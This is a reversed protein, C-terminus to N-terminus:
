CGSIADKWVMNRLPIITEFVKYRYHKWNNLHNLTFSGGQWAPAASTIEQRDMLANRAVLAIQISGIRSLRCQSTKATLAAPTAASYSDAINDPTNSTDWGYLAKLSVINSAILSWNATETCDTSLLECSTLNGNRIAYAVIDFDSGLISLTASYGNGSYTEPLTSPNYPSSSVTECAGSSSYPNLFTSANIQVVSTKGDVYENCVTSSGPLASVQLLACKKGSEAAIVLDGVQFGVRNKVLYGSYSSDAMKDNFSAAEKALNANGHVLVIIDSNSDGAPLVTGSSLAASTGAPFITVPSLNDFTFDTPSRASNHASLSCGLVADATLGHGAFRLERGLTFLAIGGNTQADSGSSINRKTNETDAFLKMMVLFAILAIAMGVLLEVLSFGSQRPSRFFYQM